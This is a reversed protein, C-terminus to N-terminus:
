LKGYFEEVVRKLTNEGVKVIAMERQANEPADSAHAANVMINSGFEKRISGPPAKSPDTPGLVDRIKAVANVGEYILAICKETGPANLKDPPCEPGSRGAMFRVINDFQNDGFLPGLVDGLQRQAEPPVPFGLEKEITAKAKGAVVDKLKTRLVERVPGYFEMADATSMRHVKIGVIYLGTRSFFDIVNGPRGTAFKFNDPKILVLTRQPVEGSAYAITKDMLGGDSDSYRAWLKLKAECEEANPPALVAPEFYVVRDNEDFVLDGYTDRITEGGRRTSSINGVVSRVKRVADEGRFLLMMARRRLGTKPDPSLNKLIYDRILEQIRRDQPDNTSVVVESYEKALAASPAFMRAAVLDLGTRSILRSLIGGTRSKYLSYPTVIVYALQQSM